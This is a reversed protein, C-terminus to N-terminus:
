FLFKKILFTFFDGYGSRKVDELSVIPVAGILEGDLYYRAEGVKDGKKVPAKINNHMSIEKKISSLDRKETDLFEFAGKYGVSIKDQISGSIKMKELADLNDDVFLKSISYGYELMNRAETFRIKPDSAGMVVSIMDIGNKQATGSFCFKAKSTSGTKLGTAYPYQKLMKNTSSLTFKSSGKPTVHTIDEMWIKTYNLVEPYHTILERSMLAVDYASTYHNDSSTLGSCDEFNTNIMGLQAAKENMKNVFATESGAILEAMAVSADNASSIVICKIMTEVSQVEGEALFVQSGGMSSAFASTTVQDTLSIREEDLAEFILVLTMIKTISAPSLQEHLNKEYIVNGTKAEMLVASRSTVNLGEANVNIGKFILMVFVLVFCTIKKMHKCWKLNNNSSYTFVFSIYRGWQGIFKEHM